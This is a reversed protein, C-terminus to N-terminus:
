SIPPPCDKGGAPGNQRTKVWNKPTLGTFTKFVRYMTSASNFGSRLMLEYKDIDPNEQLLKKCCEVRMGNVIQYFTGQQRDQGFAEYIYSSNSGVVSTIDDIKLNPQKFLEREKILFVIKNRLAQRQEPTLRETKPAEKDATKGEETRGDACDRIDVIADVLVNQQREIEKTREPSLSWHPHLVEILLWVHMVACFLDAVVKVAPRDLIFVAWMVAVWVLPVYLVHRAFKYPFDEDNSYRNQQYNRIQGKLWRMVRALYVTYCAGTLCSIGELAKEVGPSFASGPLAEVWWGLLLVAPLVGILARRLWKHRQEGRFFKLFLMSFCVPYYLIGFSRVFMWADPSATWLLYPFQLLLALYFFATQKRAPYFYDARRDYPHCMHFWRVIGCIVSSLVYILCATYYYIYPASFTTM